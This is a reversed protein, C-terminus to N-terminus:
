EPRLNAAKVARAWSPCDKRVFAAFEEITTPRPDAGQQTLQQRVEPMQLAAVIAANLRTVITPKVRAQTLLGYWTGVFEYGPV